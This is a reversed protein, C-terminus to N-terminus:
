ISCEGTLKKPLNQLNKSILSQEAVNDKKNINNPLLQSTFRLLEKEIYNNNQVM